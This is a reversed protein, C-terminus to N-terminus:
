RRPRAPDFEYGKIEPVYGFNAPTLVVNVPNGFGQLLADILGKKDIAHAIARRVRV